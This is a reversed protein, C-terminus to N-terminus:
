NTLPDTEETEIEPFIYKYATNVKDLLAPYMESTLRVYRNTSEISKHGIYTSLIPMSHYIDAGSEAMKWLSKVCFTHRFDHLRPGNGRGKHPIGAKRLISRFHEYMTHETCKSGDLAVFFYTESGMDIGERQNFLCYDKCVQALSVSFPVLRDQGNKCERLTCYGQDLDIDKHKLRLAESLRMGTGYLMRLLTPMAGFQNNHTKHRIFMKDCAKFVGDVENDTYIHPQFTSKFKPAKPLYSDYGIMQLYTSFARLLMIRGYRHAESEGPALISWEDFMEKTLGTTLTEPVSKLRHIRNLFDTRDIMKFGLSRKYAIYHQILESYIGLPPKKTMYTKM